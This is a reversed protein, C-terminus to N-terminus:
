PTADSIKNTLASGNTAQMLKSYMEWNIQRLLNNGPAILSTGPFTPYRKSLSVFTETAQEIANTALMMKGQAWQKWRGDELAYNTNLQQARVLNGIEVACAVALARSKDATSDITLVFEFNTLAEDYRCARIADMGENYQSFPWNTYDMRHQAWWSDLPQLDWPYFSIGTMDNLAKGIRNITYLSRSQHALEVLKPVFLIQKGLINVVGDLRAEPALSLFVAFEDSTFPGSYQNTGLQESSIIYNLSGRDLVLTKQVKDFMAQALLAVENTGHAIIQLQQIADRDYVEGRNMLTTLKQEEQLRLAQEQATEVSSRLSSIAGFLPQIQNRIVTQETTLLSQKNSIDLNMAGLRRTQENVNAMLAAVNTEIPHIQAAIFPVAKKRLAEDLTNTLQPDVLKQDIIKGAEVEIRGPLELWEWLLGFILIAIAVGTLGMLRKFRPEHRERAIRELEAQNALRLADKAEALKLDIRLELIERESKSEPPLNKDTHHDQSM